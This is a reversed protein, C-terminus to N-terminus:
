NGYFHLSDSNYGCYAKTLDAMVLVRSTDNGAIVLENKLSDRLQDTGGVQSFITNYIFLFLITITFTKTM